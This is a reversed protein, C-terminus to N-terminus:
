SASKNICDIELSLQHTRSAVGDRQLLYQWFDFHKVMDPAFILYIDLILFVILYKDIPKNPKAIQLM